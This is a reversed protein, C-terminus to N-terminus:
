SYWLQSTISENDYDTGCFSGYDNDVGTYECLIVLNCSGVCELLLKLVFGSNKQFGFM